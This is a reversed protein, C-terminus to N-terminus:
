AHDPFFLTSPQRLSAGAVCFKVIVDASALWGRAPAAKRGGARSGILVVSCAQTQVWNLEIGMSTAVPTGEPARTWVRPPGCNLAIGCSRNRCRM